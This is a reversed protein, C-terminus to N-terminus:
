VITKSSLEKLSQFNLHGYRDHWLKSIEENATLFCSGNVIDLKLPFLNNSGIGINEVLHNKKKMTCCDDVFHIDFGKKM